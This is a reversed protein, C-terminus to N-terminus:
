IYKISKYIDDLFKTCLDRVIDDVLEKKKKKSNEKLISIHNCNCINILKDKKYSKLIKIPSKIKNNRIRKPSYIKDIIKIGRFVPSTNEDMVYSPFLSKFQNLKFSFQIRRQKKSDVKPNITILNTSLNKSLEKYRKKIEPSPRTNKPISKLLENLSNLKNININRLLRIIINMDLEYVNKVVKWNNEQNYCIIMMTHKKNNDYKIVRFPDSCCIINSGTCKISCTENKNFRNYKASVDHPDTYKKKKLVSDSLLFVHKMMYSEWVLGHKQSEPM